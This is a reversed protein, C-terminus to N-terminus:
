AVGWAEAVVWGGGVVVGDGGREVRVEKVLVAVVRAEMVVLVEQSAIVGVTRVV